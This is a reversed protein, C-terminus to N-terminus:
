FQDSDIETYYFYMYRCVSAMHYSDMGFNIGMSVAVLTCHSVGSIYALLCGVTADIWSMM